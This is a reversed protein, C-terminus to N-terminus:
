GTARSLARPARHAPERPAMAPPSPRSGALRLVPPFHELVWAVGLPVRRHSAGRVPRYDRTRPDMPLNSEMPYWANHEGILENLRDFRWTRAQERWSESFREPDHSLAEALAGYAMELRRRQSRYEAEIERLRRMYRPASNAKLYSEITRPAVTPRRRGRPTARRTPAEQAGSPASSRRDAPQDTM